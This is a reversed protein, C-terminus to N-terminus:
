FRNGGQRNLVCSAVSFALPNVKDNRTNKVRAFYGTSENLGRILNVDANKSGYSVQRNLQTKRYSKFGEEFAKAFDSPVEKKKLVASMTMPNVKKETMPVRQQVIKEVQMEQKFSATKERKERANLLHNITLIEQEIDNEESEEYDAEVYKANNLDDRLADYIRLKENQGLAFQELAGLDLIRKNELANWIRDQQFFLREKLKTNQKLYQLLAKNMEFYNYDYMSTLKDKLLYEFHLAEEQASQKNLVNLTQVLIQVRKGRKEILKTILKYFSQTHSISKLFGTQSFKDFSFKKHLDYKENKKAFTIIATEIHKVIECYCRFFALKIKLQIYADRDINRYITKQSFLKNLLNKGELNTEIAIRESNILFIESALQNHAKFDAKELSGRHIFNRSTLSYVFFEDPNNQIIKKKITGVNIEMSGAVFGFPAEIIDMLDSTIMTVIPLEWKLPYLLSLFTFITPNLQTELSSVFIVKKEHLLAFYLVILDDVFFNDLLINYNYNDLPVSSRDINYELFVKKAKNNGLYVIVANTM